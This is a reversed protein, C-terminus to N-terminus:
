KRKFIEVLREFDELSYFSIKVHGKISKGQGAAKIDVKTGLIQQLTEELSRIEPDKREERPIKGDAILGKWDAVIKEVDRVTLGENLVKGAVEKQKEEDTISAISRAHGASIEGDAVANQIHQPLNLLRLTNAIVVRSKSMVKALAEQTLEFEEMLKKFANAEEIPNLDERQLNEILALQLKEKHTVTKIVIPVSDLGALQAARWRREGAIIEFKEGNQASAADVPTVVLPQILGQSAISDALERMAEENFRQRPQDPNARIHRIPVTQLGAAGNPSQQKVATPILSELGRGLGRPAPPM